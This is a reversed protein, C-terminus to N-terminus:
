LIVRVQEKQCSFLVHDKQGAFEGDTHLVAPKETWIELSTCDVIRIGRFHTHVGLLLAPMLLFLKWKPCAEVVCVSLKQDDLRATPALRLGGGECVGNMAAAFLYSGQEQKKGDFLLSAKVPQHTFFQKLAILLYILRGLHLFNLVKKLKSRQSEYCIDADFGIGASVGFFCKESGDFYSIAGIDISHFHRPALIHELASLPKCSLGLNAALDNGSGAPIFGLLLNPTITLGNLVENITGDGGVIILTLPLEPQASAEDCLQRALKKAHGTYETFHAQYMISRKHLVEELSRWMNQSRRSRSNLNIIFHYM